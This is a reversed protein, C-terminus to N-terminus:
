RLLTGSFSGLVINISQTGGTVSYIVRVNDGASLKLTTSGNLCLNPYTLQRNTYPNSAHFYTIGNSYDNNKLFFAADTTHASGMNQSFIASTFLYIGPVVATFIGTVPNYAGYEDYLENNYLITAGIGSGTANNQAATLTASFGM